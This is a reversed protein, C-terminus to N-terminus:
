QPKPISTDSIVLYQSLQLITPEETAPQMKSRVVGDIGQSLCGPRDEKAADHGPDDYDRSATSHSPLNPFSIRSFLVNRTDVCQLKDREIGVEDM